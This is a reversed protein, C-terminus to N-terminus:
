LQVPLDFWSPQPPTPEVPLNVWSWDVPTEPVFVGGWEWAPPTPAVYLDVWGYNDPTPPIPLTIWRWAQTGAEGLPRSWVRIAYVALDGTGPKVRVRILRGRTHGPLTLKATETGVTAALPFSRVLQVDSNPLDTSFELVGGAAQADYVLEIEKFLKVRESALDQESEVDFLENTGGNLYVGIPKILARVQFLRLAALGALTLRALRGYVGTLPVVYPRRGSSAVLTDTQRLAIDGHANSTFTKLTLPADAHAIVELQQIRKVQELGLDLETSDWIHGTQAQYAEVYYGIPRWFLWAGYLRFQSAGSLVLRVIRGEVTPTIPLNMMRRGATTTTTNVPITARPAMGLGPLETWVTLTLPGDTDIELQVERFEKVRPTGLDIDDSSWTRGSASEYAEVFEGYPKVELRAEFLRVASSGTLLVRWLHGEPYEAGPQLEMPLRFKRRGPTTTQTNIAGGFRQTMQNGPLDSQASWNVAGDTDLDLELSRARKVGPIGLDLDFSDWRQGGAAEYAEIYTGYAQLWVRAGYLQFEETQDAIFVVIRLHRGEISEPIPVQVKRRSSGGPVIKSTRAAMANGPLDTHVQCVAETANAIDLEVARIAKVKQTAFDLEDSEWTKARRAELYYHLFIAFITCPEPTTGLIDGHIHVAANKGIVGDTGNIRFVTQTRQTSFFTGLNTVRQGNDTVLEATLVTGQTNHDIVLDQYNKPNNPAGQDRYGSLYKLPFSLGADLIGDELAYVVGDKGALLAGTPGEWYLSQFGRSDQYVRRGKLVASTSGM